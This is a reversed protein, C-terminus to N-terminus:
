RAYEARGAASPFLTIRRMAWVARRGDTTRRENNMTM